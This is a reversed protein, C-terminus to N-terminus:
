RLEGTVGEATAARVRVGRLRNTLDQAAIVRVRVFTDTLGEWCSRGAQATATEFLVAVEQGVLRQHFQLALRQGLAAMQQARAAAVEPPVQAAMAAAVTGPRPSYRFVHLRSFALREVLGLSEGFEDETEGPFGVM